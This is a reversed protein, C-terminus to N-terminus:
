FPNLADLLKPIFGRKTSDRLAGKNRKELELDFLQTSLVSNDASVDEARCIGSLIFVQEEEDTRIRKRAQVVLTGNPKVDIIEAQVRATFTDTRNITGEGKFSRSGSAKVSPIPADIGAGSLKLNLLENLAIFEEIKADLAAQKKLDTTGKSSFASEERVIITILDRKRLVKPQPAPVAFFSISDLPVQGPDRPTNLAARVLSGGSASLQDATEQAVQAAAAPDSAPQRGNTPTAARESTSNPAPAALAAVSLLVVVVAAAIAFYVTIKRPEAHNIM